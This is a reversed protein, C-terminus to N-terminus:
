RSMRGGLVGGLPVAWLREGLPVCETGNYALWGARCRPNAQLFARLGALDREGWRSGAKIEVALLERGRELVFDVEHRGQIHWYHLRVPPDATEALAALNQAAWTEVLAGRRPEDAAPDLRHIGALHAALGSDSVYLKPSKILRSAPSALYPPCTRLVYSTEGLDLYRRVTNAALGADRALRWPRLLSRQM